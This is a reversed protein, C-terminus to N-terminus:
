LGHKPPIVPPSAEAQTKSPFLVMMTTASIFAFSGIKGLAEKRTIPHKELHDIKREKEKQSRM